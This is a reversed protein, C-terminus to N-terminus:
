GDKDKYKDKDKNGKGKDNGGRRKRETEQEERHMRQSKAIIAETKQHEAVYKDFDSSLLGGNSDLRHAIYTDLGEFDPAKPSRRVARQLMLVRRCLFEASQCAPVNLQDISSMLWLITILHGHEMCVSSRPGVGSSSAWFAQYHQPELGSSVIGSVVEMAASPGTFLQSQTAAPAKMTRVMDRFLGFQEGGRDKVAENLRADRGAGRHKDGQWDVKDESAVHEAVTWTEEGDIHHKVLAVADRSIFRTNNTVVQNPVETGFLAVSPDSFYWRSEVGQVAGVPTLGMIECRAHAEQKWRDVQEQNTGATFCFCPQLDLALDENRGVMRFEVETLDDLQVSGTPTAWFWKGGGVNLLLVRMHYPHGGDGYYVCLQKDGVDLSKYPRVGAAVVAAAAM